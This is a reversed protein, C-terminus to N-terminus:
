AELGPDTIRHADLPTPKKSIGGPRPQIVRGPLEMAVIVATMVSVFTNFHTDLTDFTRPFPKSLSPISGYRRPLIKGNKKLQMPQQFGSLRHQPPQQSVQNHRGAPPQGPTLVSAHPSGQCWGASRSAPSTRYIASSSSHQGTAAYTSSIM